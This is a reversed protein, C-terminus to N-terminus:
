VKGCVGNKIIRQIEEKAAKESFGNGLLTNLLFKAQQRAVDVQKKGDVLGM